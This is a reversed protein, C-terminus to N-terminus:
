VQAIVEPESGAPSLRLAELPAMVPVGVAVPVELKVTVTVSELLGALVAEAFRDILTEAVTGPAGVASLATAPLVLTARDHVVGADLPPDAMVPYSM